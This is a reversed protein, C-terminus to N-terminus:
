FHRFFFSYFFEINKKAISHCAHLNWLGRVVRSPIEDLLCWFTGGICLVPTGMTRTL